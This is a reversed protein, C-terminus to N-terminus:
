AADRARATESGQMIQKNPAIAEQVRKSVKNCGHPKRKIVKGKANDYEAHHTKLTQIDRHAANAKRPGTRDITGIIENPITNNKLMRGRTQRKSSTKVMSVGEPLRKNQRSIHTPPCDKFM